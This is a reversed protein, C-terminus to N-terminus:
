GSGIRTIEIHGENNWKAFTERAKQSLELVLNSM